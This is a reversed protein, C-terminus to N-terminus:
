PDGLGLGLAGISRAWGKRWVDTIVKTIATINKELFYSTVQKKLIVENVMLKFGSSWDWVLEISWRLPSWKSSAVSFLKQKEKSLFTRGDLSLGIQGCCSIPPVPTVPEAPWLNDYIWNPPLSLLHVMASPLAMTCWWRWQFDYSRLLLRSVYVKYRAHTHRHSPTTFDWKWTFRFFFSIIKSSVLMYLCTMLATHKPAGWGLHNAMEGFLLM